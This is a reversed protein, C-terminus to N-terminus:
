NLVFNSCFLQWQKRQSEPNQIHSDVFTNTHPIESPVVTSHVCRLTTNLLIRVWYKSTSHTEPWDSKSRNSALIRNSVSSGRIPFQFNIAIRSNMAIYKYSQSPFFIFTHFLLINWNTWKLFYQLRYAMQHSNEIFFNTYFFKESSSWYNIHFVITMFTFYHFMKEDFKNNAICLLITDMSATDFFFGVSTPLRKM